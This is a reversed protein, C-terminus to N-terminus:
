GIQTINPPHLNTVLPYIILGGLVTQTLTAAEVATDTNHM